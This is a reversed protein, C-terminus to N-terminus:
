SDFEGSWLSSLFQAYPWVEIEGMHLKQPVQAVLIHREFINEEFIAKLGKLDKPTIHEKAKVEIALREGVLFDVEHGATSRWYSLRDRHESYSLYARLEQGIFHEFQTGYNPTKPVVSFNNMLANRVGVDFLYFKARQIAKRKQTARFAPLQFGLLTDELIEIHKILTTRKMQVDSALHTYNIEQGSAGAMVNLLRVFTPLNRVAAEQLIEQQLYLDVYAHLEKEPVSSLYIGPLGGFGLYKQLEFDTGLECSTLPYLNARWARGGLLNVSTGRLRRASSGTLLFIHGKEEILRHVEHLLEPILQIEDIVVYTNSNENDILEELRHPSASLLLRIQSDLLNIVTAQGSLQHRILSSKGTARPGFLFHSKQSLLANLDLTRAFYM